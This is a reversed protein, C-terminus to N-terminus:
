ACPVPQLRVGEFRGAANWEVRFAIENYELAVLHTVDIEFPPDDPGPKEYVGVKEGNIYIATDEPASDLYLFYNVCQDTPYLDFGRKLWAAWNELRRKDFVWEVLSPVPVDNQFEYLGPELEFYACVWGSNLSIAPLTPM